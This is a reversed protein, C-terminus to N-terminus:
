AEPKLLPFLITERIGADTFLMVLRDIGLGIGGIVGYGLYLLWLQETAIGLSGVLFGTVWFVASTAMAARPGNRDVWKGFVAASLGLMVIAISFIIGISTLSADFHEVLATKYVSTAYAQGICLHIALAAPPVLWRSYGPGAVSRERDLFSLASM